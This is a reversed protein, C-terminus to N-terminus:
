DTIIPLGTAEAADELGGLNTAGDVGLEALAAIANAARGGAKCYVAYTADRPLAAIAEAFGPGLIDIHLAGPLHGQAWEEPTRVDLIVPGADGDAGASRTAHLAVAGVAATVAAAILRSPRM